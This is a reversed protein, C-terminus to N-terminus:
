RAYGLTQLATKLEELIAPDDITAPVRYPESDAIRRMTGRLVKGSRTKPLREVVCARKFAAVPGIEERVGQVVEAVIAATARDVGANLVVLGVPVQGKLEDAVGIVACEAVDPHSALVEEIGGTSLRHGAVNIIDDTRSMIWLYGDEDKHGADATEYYGPFRSLYSARFGEDNRWLTTLCGPPLPLRIVLSGSQM